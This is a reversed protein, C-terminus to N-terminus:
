MYELMFMQWAAKRGLKLLDYQFSLVINRDQTNSLTDTRSQTNSALLVTIELDTFHAVTYAHLTKLM